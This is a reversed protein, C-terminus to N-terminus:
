PGGVTDMGWFKERVAQYHLTPDYFQVPLRLDRATLHGIAALLRYAAVVADHRANTLNVQANLTEDVADLVDQITRQGQEEERRIGDEAKKATAVQTQFSEIRARAAVLDYWAGAADNAAKRQETEIDIRREGAQEKSQRERAAVVGGQYLPITVEGLVALTDHHTSAIGDLSVTPMAEGAVAKVDDRAASESYQAAVISPHSASDAVAEDVTGPLDAPMDPMAVTTPPAGVVRVYTARSSNLNSEAQVREATANALRSQSQAADTDTLEGATVRRRVSALQSELNKEHDRDLEVVSEDRLVDMYAIVAELLVQEESATLQARQAQVLNEAEKTQASVRGGTYLPQRVRLEARGLLGDNHDHNDNHDDRMGVGGNANIIATPRWGGRAAPVGEDTARLQARAAQLESNSSYAAALADALSDARAEGAAAIGIALGAALLVCRLARGSRDRTM